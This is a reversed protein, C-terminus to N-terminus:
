TKKKFFDNSNKKLFIENIKESLEETSYYPYFDKRPIWKRIKQRAVITGELDYIHFNTDYEIEINKKNPDNYTIRVPVKIKKDSGTTKIDREPLYIYGHYISKKDKNLLKSIKEFEIKSKKTQGDVKFALLVLVIYIFLIFLFATYLIYNSM